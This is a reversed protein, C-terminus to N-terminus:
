NGTFKRKMFDFISKFGGAIKPGIETISMWIRRLLTPKGQQVETRVGERVVAPDSMETLINMVEKERERLTMETSEKIVKQQKHVARIKRELDAIKSRLIADCDQTDDAMKDGGNESWQFPRSLMERQHRIDRLEKEYREESRKAITIQGHCDESLQRRIIALRREAANKHDNVIETERDNIAVEAKEFIDSTYFTGNNAAVMEDIVRFLDLVQRENEAEDAHNNFGICRNQCNQLVRQLTQPATRVLDHLDRGDRDLEDKRTFVVILYKMMQDGFAKQLLRVTEHEEQTFRNIGVVLLIAHPGPATIGVCKLIEETVADNDMGTDFLGPTDVVQVLKNFRRNKGRLCHTTVSGCSAQSEFANKGLINNGTCSKGSGTRGILIIRTEEGLVDDAKRETHPYKIQKENKPIFCMECKDITVNNDYTCNSCRWGSLGTDGHTDIVCPDDTELDNATNCIECCSATSNNEFSCKPCAWTSICEAM